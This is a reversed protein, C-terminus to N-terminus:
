RPNGSSSSPQRSPMASAPLSIWVQAGGGEGNAACAEGDHAEAITRVISLGLGAGDETRGSSARAFREWAISLFDPPFGPGDDTVHLEVIGPRARTNLWVHSHAHRVANAVLNDLAQGLRDRDVLVWADAEADVSIDVDGGTALRRGREGAERLLTAASERSRHLALAHDDARALLLLDDALRTLRDTEDIAVEVASELESGAPRELAILELDARLIALPTRLEHSADSVLTRERAVSAQVRALMENLTRGLRALEDEGDPLPLRQDLESASIAAARRRMAEVPRLAFGTLLYGALSALLLACPGGLLLVGSLDALARNREALPQGVVIVLTQDQARVSQALLRVSGSTGLVVDTTIRDGRRVAAVQAARILARQPVGATRDLVRDSGTILQAMEVRGASPRADRLGTDSQQALAAVDAARARLTSDIGADLDSRVRQHVFAGTATLVVAMVVAFAATL